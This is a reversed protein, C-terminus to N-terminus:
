FWALSFSSSVVCHHVQIIRGDPLLFEETRENSEREEKQANMSVYSTREKIIRVIEREASTYFPFGSHTVTEIINFGAQRLMRVMLDTVDRGALDVRQIANSVAFGEFVPVAHTM